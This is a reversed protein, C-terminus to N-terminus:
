RANFNMSGAYWTARQAGTRRFDGARAMEIVIAGVYSEIAPCGLDAVVVRQAGGDPQVLVLYPVDIDFRRHTQGSLACSKEELIHAVHEVMAGTPHPRAAKQLAPFASWNAKGAEIVPASQTPAAALSAALLSTLM